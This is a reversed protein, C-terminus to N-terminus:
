RAVRAQLMRYRWYQNAAVAAIVIAGGQLAAASPREALFIWVWMPGLIMELLSILGMEAAPLHRSARTSLSSGMGVQLCGMLALLALDRGGITLTPAMIAGACIAVFAGVMVQPLMDISVAFKRLTTIQAAFCVCVGLAFVDGLVSRARLSDAFVIALGAAAVAMALWTPRPVREGLVIWAALAAVLPAVSMVVYVNTVTTFSLASLFCLSAGAQMSGSFLGPKGIARVAQPLRWGHMGLLMGSVFLGMFLARWFLIEWPNTISLLRVLYGGSSWCLAAAVMMWQARHHAARAVESSVTV